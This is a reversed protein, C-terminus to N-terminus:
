WRTPACAWFGGPAGLISARATSGNPRLYRCPWPRPPACWGPACAAGPFPNGRRDPFGSGPSVRNWALVPLRWGARRGVAPRRTDSDSISESASARGGVGARDQPRGEQDEGHFGARVTKSRDAWWAPATAGASIELFSGRHQVLLGDIFKVGHFQVSNGVGEASLQFGGVGAVEAEFFAERQEDILLPKPFLVPCQCPASWGGVQSFAAHDLIDIVLVRTAVST